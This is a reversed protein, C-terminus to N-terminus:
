KLEYIHVPTKRTWSMDLKLIDALYLRKKDPFEQLSVVMIGKDLRVIRNALKQMLFEPFATSCTYIITADNLPYKLLNKNCFEVEKGKPLLGMNQATELAQNAQMNRTKSLEVGVCRAASTTLAAQMVVKGVGSGLDYFVDNKKVSLHEFLKQLGGFTIEGYLPAGENERVEREETRPIGYGDIDKYLRKILTRQASVLKKKDMFSGTM